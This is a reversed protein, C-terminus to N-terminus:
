SRSSKEPGSPRFPKAPPTLGRTAQLIERVQEILWRRQEPLNLDRQAIDVRIAPCPPHALAAAFDAQLRRLFADTFYREYDRARGAIRTKLLELPGDLWILVDPGHVLPAVQAALADYAALDEGTLWIRAYLGDQLFAYDTVIIGDDRWRAQALQNVRSLLFWSQGALRLEARGAYSEALFPNGAYDELVLQGSLEEALWAAATTKGSGPPGALSILAATM